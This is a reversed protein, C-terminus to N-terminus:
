ERSLARRLRHAESDLGAKQLAYIADLVLRELQKIHEERQAIAPDHGTWQRILAWAARYQNLLGVLYDDGPRSAELAWKRETAEISVLVAAPEAACFAQALAFADSFPVNETGHRDTYTLPSHQTEKFGARSRIRGIGEPPGTLVGRLFSVGEEGTSEFVESLANDVPSNKQYGHRENDENLRREAEEDRLFTKRDRWPVILSKSELYDTHTGASSGANAM